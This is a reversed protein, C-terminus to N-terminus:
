QGGEIKHADMNCCEFSNDGTVIGICFEKYNSNNFLTGTLCPVKDKNDQLIM